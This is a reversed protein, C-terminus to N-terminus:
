GTTGDVLERLIDLHGLHRATEELMHVLVYRLTVDQRGDANAVSVSELALRTEIARSREIATRYLAIVDDPDDSRASSFDWDADEEFPASAWPEPVVGTMRESFWYDEVYALHKVLSIISTNSRVASAKSHAPDELNELKTVVGDRYYDLLGLLMTREDATHVRPWPREVPAALPQHSGFRKESASREVCFENGEPDAMTVWGSGDPRRHDAVISAGKGVLVEVEHDRGNLLPQVDLHVRNKARKAEPVAIFLLGPLRGSPDHVLWEPDGSENEPHSLMGLADAWFLGLLEPNAWDFTIHNIASSM